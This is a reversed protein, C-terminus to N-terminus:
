EKIEVANAFFIEDDLYFLKEFHEVKVPVFAGIEKKAKSMARKENNEMVEITRVESLVEDGKLTNVVYTFKTGKVTRQM